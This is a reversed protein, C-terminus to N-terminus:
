VRVWTGDTSWGRLGGLGAERQIASQTNWDRLCSKMWAEKSADTMPFKRTSLYAELLRADEELDVEVKTTESGSRGFLGERQGEEDWAIIEMFEPILVKEGRVSEHDNWNSVVTCEKTITNFDVVYPDRPTLYEALRNDPLRMKPKTGDIVAAANVFLGTRATDGSGNDDYTVRM